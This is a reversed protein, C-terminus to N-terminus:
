AGLFVVNSYVLALSLAAGRGGLASYIQGGFTLMLATSAIGACAGIVLAHMALASARAEQRAGLARSIASSVGGGMAGASMMTTLMVMPFVLALGALSPIGLRGVYVTEAVAVLASALMALMNPLSLRLLTRLIPAVLLPNAALPADARHSPTQSRVVGTM